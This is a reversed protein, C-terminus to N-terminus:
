DTREGWNVGEKGYLDLIEAESMGRKRVWKICPVCMGYGTNRNPHQEWRGADGGCCNCEMRRVTM